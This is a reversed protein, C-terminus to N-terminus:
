RRCSPYSAAVSKARTAAYRRFGAPGLKRATTLLEAARRCVQATSVLDQQLSLRNALRTDWTDFQREPRRFGARRFHEIMRHQYAIIVRRNRWRFAAYTDEARCTSSVVMLRTLLVLGQEAEVERPSYCPARAAASQGWALGIVVAAVLAKKM